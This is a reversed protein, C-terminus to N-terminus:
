EAQQQATAVLAALQARSTLGLKAYISTLYKEVTKEGISLAEAVARNAKGAAVQLALERERATLVGLTGAASQAPAFELRRVDGAAGCRVYIARAADRSGAMELARAEFLPWGIAHFGEAADLPNSGVLALLAKNVRDGAPKAAAELMPRLERAREPLQTAIAVIPLAM